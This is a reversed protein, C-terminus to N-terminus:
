STPAFGEPQKSNVSPLNLLIDMHRNIIQQKNGFRSKLIVIAEEYNANTLSLGAISEAAAGDM